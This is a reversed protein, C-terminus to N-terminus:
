GGKGRGKMQRRGRRGRKKGVVRTERGLHQLRQAIVIHLTVNPQTHDVTKAQRLSGNDCCPLNSYVPSGSGLNLTLEGTSGFNVAKGETIPGLREDSLKPVWHPPM